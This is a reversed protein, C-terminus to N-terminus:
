RDLLSRNAKADQREGFIWDDLKSNEQYPKAVEHTDAGLGDARVVQEYCGQLAALAFLAITSLALSRISKQSV